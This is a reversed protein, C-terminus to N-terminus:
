AAQVEPLMRAGVAAKEKGEKLRRWVMSNYEFYHWIAENGEFPTKGINTHLYEENYKGSRSNQYAWKENVVQSAIYSLCFYDKLDDSRFFCFDSDIEPTGKAYFDPMRFWLNITFTNM